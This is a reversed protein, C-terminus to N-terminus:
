TVSYDEGASLNELISFKSCIYYLGFNTKHFKDNYCNEMAQSFREPTMLNNKLLAELQKWDKGNYIYEKGLNKLHFEHFEKKIIERKNKIDIDEETEKKKRRAMYKLSKPLTIEWINESYKQFTRTIIGLCESFMGMINQLSKRKIRLEQCLKSETIRLTKTPEDKTLNQEALLENLIWFRAYNALDKNKVESLGTGNRANCDHQFWTITSM